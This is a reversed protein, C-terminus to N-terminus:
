KLQEPATLVIGSFLANEITLNYKYLEEEFGSLVMVNFMVCNGNILVCYQYIDYDIGDNQFRDDKSLSYSLKTKLAHNGQLLVKKSYVLRIGSDQEINESIGRLFDQHNKWIDNIKSGLKSTLIYAVIHSESDSAAFISGKQRLPQLKWNLEENLHWIFGYKYNIYTQQSEEWKSDQEQASIHLCFTVFLIVLLVSKINIQFRMAM